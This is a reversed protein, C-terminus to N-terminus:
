PWLIREAVERVKKDPHKEAIKRIGDTDGLDHLTITASMQLHLDHASWVIHRVEERLTSYRRMGIIFLAGDVTKTDSSALAKKVYPGADDRRYQNIAWTACYRVPDDNDGLFGILVPLAEAAPRRTLSAIQQCKPNSRVAVLYDPIVEEM